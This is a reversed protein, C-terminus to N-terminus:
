KKLIIAKDLKLEGLLDDYGIIRGKIQIKQDEQLNDTSTGDELQFYFSGEVSIGKLDKATITGTLEIVKDGAKSWADANAEMKNQFEEASGTYVIEMDNISTHSQYLYFYGAIGGVVLLALISLFIKSKKSLNM